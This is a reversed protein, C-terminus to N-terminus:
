PLIFIEQRFMKVEEPLVEVPQTHYIYKNLLGGKKQEVIYVERGRPGTRGALVMNIFYIKHQLGKAPLDTAWQQKKPFCTRRGEM